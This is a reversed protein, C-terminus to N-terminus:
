KTGATAPLRFPRFRRKGYLDALLEDYEDLLSAATPRLNPTTQMCGRAFARQRKEDPALMRLMLAHAMYVDTKGTVPGAKAEPPYNAAETAVTGPLTGGETTAFSWGALVVGHYEPHILVNAPLIAGHVLGAIQAGAVARLLRRHMWAWDRGDLGQPYARLVDALSVFGEKSTLANLVNVKRQENTGTARHTATDLLMPYYPILWDEVVLMAGLAKYAARENEIFRSSAPRRPIKVVAPGDVTEASYLTAITGQGVPDGLVYTAKRTDLTIKTSTPGSAHAAATSGSKAATTWREYLEALKAFAETARAPDLGNAVARDTHLLPVLSRYLRKAARVKASDQSVPGFLDEAVTAKEVQDLAEAAQTTTTSMTKTYNVL